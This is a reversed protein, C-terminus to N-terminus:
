YLICEYYKYNIQQQFKVYYNTKIEYGKSTRIRFFLVNNFSMLENWTDLDTILKRIHISKIYNVVKLVIGKSIQFSDFEM